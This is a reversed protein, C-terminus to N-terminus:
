QFMCYCSQQLEFDLDLDQQLDQDGVFNEITTGRRYTYKEKDIICEKELNVAVTWLEPYRKKLDIWNRKSQFPCIFCGSKMPLGLGAEKIVKRCGNRDIEMDVLPYKNRKYKHSVRHSEGADIGIIIEAKPDLSKAYYSIPRIKWRETCWRNMMSPIVKFRQCREILTEHEVGGELYTIRIGISELYDMYQYTHPYEAGTDSFVIEDFPPLRKMLTLAILATSNIGAGYSLIRVM